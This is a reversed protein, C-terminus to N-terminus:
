LGLAELVEEVTPRTLHYRKLFNQLTCSGNRHCTECDHVDDGFMVEIVSRRLDHIDESETLIVMGEAVPTSCAPVLRDFGEVEVACLGCSSQTPQGPSWCLFPVRIGARGAALLITTGEAATVPKGDITIHIEGM